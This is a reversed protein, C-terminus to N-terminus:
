VLGAHAHGIPMLQKLIKPAPWGICQYITELFEVFALLFNNAHAARNADQHPGKFVFSNTDSSVLFSHVAVFLVINGFRPFHGAIEAILLLQYLYM